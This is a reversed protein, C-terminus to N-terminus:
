FLYGFSIEGYPEFDDVIGVADLAARVGPAAPNAGPNEADHLKALHLLGGAILALRPGPRAGNGRFGYGVGAHGVLWGRRERYRGTNGADDSIDARMWYHSYGFGADLIPSHTDMLWFRGRLPITLAEFSLNADGGPADGDRRNWGLGAGLSLELWCVGPQTAAALTIWSNPGLANLHGGWLWPCEDAVAPEPESVAPPPPPPPPEAPLTEAGKTVRFVVRRNEAWPGECPATDTPEKDNCSEPESVQPQDEGKGVSTVREEAIGGDILWRRVSAARRESLDRNYEDSGRSDTHGEVEIKVNPYDSLFKRFEALTAQTEADNRLDAEDYEFNIVGEYDLKGERFRIFPLFGPGKRKEDPARTEASARADADDATSVNGSASASFKCGALLTGFLLCGSAKAFDFIM